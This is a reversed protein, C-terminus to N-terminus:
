CHPARMSSCPSSTFRQRHPPLTKSCSLPPPPTDRVPASRPVALTAAAGSSQSPTHPPLPPVAGLCTCPLTLSPAGSHRHLHFSVPCRLAFRSGWNQDRRTKLSRSFGFSGVGALYEKNVRPTGWQTWVAYNRFQIWRICRISNRPDQFAEPVPGFGQHIFCLLIVTESQFFIGLELM